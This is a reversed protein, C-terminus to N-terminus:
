KWKKLEFKYTEKDTVPIEKVGVAADAGNVYIHYYEDAGADVSKLKTLMDGFDFKTFGSGLEEQKENLLDYLFASDTRYTKKESINEREIVIEITVEKSGENAQPSLYTKYLYFAGFALVLTLLIATLKKKM